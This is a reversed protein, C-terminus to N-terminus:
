SGFTDNKASSSTVVVLVAGVVVTVLTTGFTIIVVGVIMLVIDGVVISVGVQLWLPNREFSSYYCGSYLWIIM